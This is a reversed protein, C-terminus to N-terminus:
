AVPKDFTFVALVMTAVMLCLTWILSCVVVVAHGVKKFLTKLRGM